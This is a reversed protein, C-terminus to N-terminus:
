IVTLFPFSKCFFLLIKHRNWITDPRIASSTLHRDPQRSIFRCHFSCPYGYFDIRIFGALRNGFIDITLKDLMEAPADVAPYPSFHEFVALKIEGDRRIVVRITAAPADGFIM